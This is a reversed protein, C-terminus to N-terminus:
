KTPEAKFGSGVRSSTMGASSIEQVRGAPVSGPQGKADTFLYYGNQLRPKGHTSIRSGSNLTITYHRACGSLFLTVCLALAPLPKM